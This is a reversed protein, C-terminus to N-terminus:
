VYVQRNRHKASADIYLYIKSYKLKRKWFHSLLQFLLYWFFYFILTRLRVEFRLGSRIFFKLNINNQNTNSQQSIVTSLYKFSTIQKLSIVNITLTVIRLSKVFSIMKTKAVNRFICTM